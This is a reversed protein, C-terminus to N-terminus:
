GTTPGPRPSSCTSMSCAQFTGKAVGVRVTVIGNGVKGACGLYQRQGGPTHDGWKRCRTEDIVGVTGQPDAPLAAVVSGLHKQLTDRADNQDWHATM